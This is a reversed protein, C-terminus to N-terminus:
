KIERTPSKRDEEKRRRAKTRRQNYKVLSVYKLFYYKRQLKHTPCVKLLLRSPHQLPLAPQPRHLPHMKPHDKRAGDEPVEAQILLALDTEWNNLL